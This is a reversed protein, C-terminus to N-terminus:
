PSSDEMFFGSRIELTASDLVRSEGLAVEEVLDANIKPTSWQNAASKQM